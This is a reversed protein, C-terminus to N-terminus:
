GKRFESTKKRQGKKIISELTQERIFNVLVKVVKDVDKENVARAFTVINKAKDKLSLQEILM